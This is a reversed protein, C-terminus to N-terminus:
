IRMWNNMVGDRMSFLSYMFKFLSRFESNLVILYVEIPEPFKSDVICTKNKGPLACYLTNTLFPM